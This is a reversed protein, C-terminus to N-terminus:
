AADATLQVRVRALLFCGLQMERLLRSRPDKESHHGSVRHIFGGLQLDEEWNTLAQGYKQTWAAEAVELLQVPQASREALMQAAAAYDFAEQYPHEFFLEVDDDLCGTIKSVQVFALAPPPNPCRSHSDLTRCEVSLPDIPYMGEPMEVHMMEEALWQLRPETEVRLFRRFAIGFHVPSNTVTHAMSVAWRGSRGSSSGSPAAGPGALGTKQWWSQQGEGAVEPEVGYSAVRSQWPDVRPAATKPLNAYPGELLQLMRRDTDENQLGRLEAGERDIWLEAVSAAPMAEYKAPGPSDLTDAWDAPLEPLEDSAVVLEDALLPSQVQPVLVRQRRQAPVPIAPVDPQWNWPAGCESCFKSTQPQETGCKPCERNDGPTWWHGEEEEIHESRGRREADRRTERRQRRLREEELWRELESVSLQRVERITLGSQISERRLSKLKEKDPSSKTPIEVSPAPTQIAKAEVKLKLFAERRKGAEELKIEEDFGKLLRASSISVRGLLDAKGIEDYDSIKFELVDTAAVLLETTADWVPDSSNEVVETKFIVKGDVIVECFPDSGKSGPLWDADRLNRASCITVRLTEQPFVNSGHCIM